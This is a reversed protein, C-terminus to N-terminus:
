FFSQGRKNSSFVTKLKIIMVTCTKTYMKTIVGLFSACGKCKEAVSLLFNVGTKPQYTCMDKWSM